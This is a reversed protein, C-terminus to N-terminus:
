ALVNLVNSGRLSRALRAEIERSLTIRKRKAERVLATRVKPDVRVSVTEKYIKKM